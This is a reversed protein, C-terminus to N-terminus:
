PPRVILEIRGSTVIVSSPIAATYRYVFILSPGACTAGGGLAVNELEAASPTGGMAAVLGPGVAGDAGAQVSLVAAVVVRSLLPSM